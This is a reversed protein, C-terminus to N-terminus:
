GAKPHRRSQAVATEPNTSKPPRVEAPQGTPPDEAVLMSDQIPPDYADAIENLTEVRESLERALARLHSAEKKREESSGHLVFLDLYGEIRAGDGPYTQELEKRRKQIQVYLNERLSVRSEAQELRLLLDKGAEMKGARIQQITGRSYGLLKAM